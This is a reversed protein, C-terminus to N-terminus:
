ELMPLHQHRVGYLGQNVDYTVDWIHVGNGNSQEADQVGRVADVASKWEEKEVPGVEEWWRDRCVVKLEDRSVGFSKDFLVFHCEIAPARRKLDILKLLDRRFAQRQRYDASCAAKVEIAAFIDAASVKRVIDVIGNGYCTYSIPNSADAVRLVVLDTCRANRRTQDADCTAGRGGVEVSDPACQIRVEGQTRETMLPKGLHPFRDHVSLLKKSQDLVKLSTLKISLHQQLNTALGAQLGWERMLLYPNAIYSSISQHIARAITTSDDPARQM